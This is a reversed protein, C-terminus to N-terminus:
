LMSSFVHENSPCWHHGVQKTEQQTLTRLSNWDDIATTKQHKVLCTSLLNESTRQHSRIDNSRFGQCVCEAYCINSLTQQLSKNSSLSLYPRYPVELDFIVMSCPRKTWKQVFGNEPCQHRKEIRWACKTLTFVCGESKTTSLSHSSKLIM